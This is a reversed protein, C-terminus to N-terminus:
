VEWRKRGSGTGGLRRWDSGIAAQAKRGGGVMVEWRQRQRAVMEWRM